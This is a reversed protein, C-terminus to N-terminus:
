KRVKSCPPARRWRTALQAAVVLGDHERAAEAVDAGLMHLLALERRARWDDHEPPGAMSIPRPPPAAEDMALPRTARPDRNRRPAARCRRLHLPAALFDDVAAPREALWFGMTDMWSTPAPPRDLASGSSTWSLPRPARKSSRAHGVVLGAHRRELDPAVLRLLAVHQGDVGAARRAELREALALAAGEGHTPARWRALPVSTTSSACKPLVGISM